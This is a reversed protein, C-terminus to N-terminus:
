LLLFAYYLVLTHCFTQTAANHIHVTWEFMNGTKGLYGFVAYGTTDIFMRGYNKNESDGQYRHVIYCHRRTECNECEIDFMVPWAPRDQNHYEVLDPYMSSKVGAWVKMHFFYSEFGNKMSSICLSRGCRRTRWAVAMSYTLVSRRTSQVQMTYEAMNKNGPELQNGPYHNNEFSLIKNELLLNCCMKPKRTRVQRDPQAPASLCILVSINLALIRMM